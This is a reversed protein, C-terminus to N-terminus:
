MNLEKEELNFYAQKGNKRKNLEHIAYEKAREESLGGFLGIAKFGKAYVKDPIEKSYIFEKGVELLKEKNENYESKISDELKLKESYKSFYSTNNNELKTAVEQFIPSLVKFNLEKEKEELIEIFSPNQKCFNYYYVLTQMSQKDDLQEITLNNFFDKVKGLDPYKEIASNPFMNPVKTDKIKSFEPDQLLTEIKHEIEEKIKLNQKANENELRILTEEINVNKTIEEKSKLNFHKLLDVTVEASNTFSHDKEKQHPNIQNYFFLDSKDFSFNFNKDKVIQQLPILCYDFAGEMNNRAKKCDWCADAYYLGNLNYKPDNIIVLNNAHSGLSKGDKNFIDCGQRYCKLENHPIIQDCACKLLSAFGSCIVKDSSLVGIWNRMTLDTFDNGMNYVRNAVFKYIIMFKEYPSLSVEQGNEQYTFSNIKNKLNEIQERAILLNNYEGSADNLRIENKLNNSECYKAVEELTKMESEEYIYDKDAFDIVVNDIVVNNSFHKKAQEIREIINETNSTFLSLSCQEGSNIANEFTESDFMVDFVDIDYTFNKM